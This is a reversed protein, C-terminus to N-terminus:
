EAGSDGVIEGEVVEGEASAAYGDAFLKTYHALLNEESMLMYHAVQPLGALEREMTQSHHVARLAAAGTQIGGSEHELFTMGIRQLKRLNDAHRALMEELGEVEYNMLTDRVADDWALSRRDWDWKKIWTHWVKHAKADSVKEYQALREPYRVALMQRFAADINRSYPPLSRYFFFGEYADNPEGELRFWPRAQEGDPKMLADLKVTLAKSDPQM